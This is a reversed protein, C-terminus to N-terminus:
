LGVVLVMGCLTTVMSYGVCLVDMAEQTVSTTM